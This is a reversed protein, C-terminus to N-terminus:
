GYRLFSVCLDLYFFVYLLTLLVVYFLYSSLHFSLFQGDISNRKKKKRRRRPRCSVGRLSLYTKM